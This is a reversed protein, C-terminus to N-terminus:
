LCEDVPEEVFCLEIFHKIKVFIRNLEDLDAANASSLLLRHVQADLLAKSHDIQKGLRIVGHYDGGKKRAQACLLDEGEVPDLDVERAEAHLHILRNHVSTETLYLGFIRVVLQREIRLKRRYQEVPLPNLFRTLAAQHKRAVDCSTAVM